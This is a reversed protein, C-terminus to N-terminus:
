DKQSLQFFKYIQAPDTPYLGDVWVQTGRNRSVGAQFDIGFDEDEQIVIIISM